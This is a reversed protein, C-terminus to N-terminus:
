NVNKDEDPKEFGTDMHCGSLAYYGGGMNSEAPGGMPPVYWCIAIRNEFPSKFFGVVRDAGASVDLPKFAGSKEAHLKLNRKQKISERLTFVGISYSDNNYALPFKRLVQYDPTFKNKNLYDVAKKTNQIDLLEQTPSKVRFSVVQFDHVTNFVIVDVHFGGVPEDPEVITAFVIDGSKSWGLAICGEHDKGIQTIHKEMFEVTFQTEAVATFASFLLLLLILKRM